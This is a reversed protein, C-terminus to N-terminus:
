GAATLLSRELGVALVAPVAGQMGVVSGQPLMGSGMGAASGPHEWCRRVAAASPRTLCSGREGCRTSSGSCHFYKM